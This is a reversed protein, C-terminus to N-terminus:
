KRCETNALKAETYDADLISNQVPSTHQERDRGTGAITMGTETGTGCHFIGNRDRDWLKRTGTGCHFIREQGPGVPSFGTRDRDWLPFDREQGPGTAKM